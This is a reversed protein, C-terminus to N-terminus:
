SRVGSTPPIQADTLRRGQVRRWFFMGVALCLAAIAIFWLWWHSGGRVTPPVGKPEQLGYHSLTFVEDPPPSPDIVEFTVEQRKVFNQEQDL